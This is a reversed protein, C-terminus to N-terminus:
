KVTIVLADLLRARSVGNMKGLQARAARRFTVVREGWVGSNSNRSSSSIGRGIEQGVGADRALLAVDAAFHLVELVARNGQM